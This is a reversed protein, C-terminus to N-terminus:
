GFTTPETQDLKTGGNKKVYCSRTGIAGVLSNTSLNCNM